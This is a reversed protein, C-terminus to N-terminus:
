IEKLTKKYNNLNMLSIQLKHMMYIGFQQLFVLIMRKWGIVNNYNKNQSIILHKLMDIQLTIVERRNKFSNIM